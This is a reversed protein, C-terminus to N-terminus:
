IVRVEIDTLGAIGGRMVENRQVPGIGEPTGTFILDGPQLEFYTSLNAVIEPVSWVLNALDSRQRDQGDVQLWIEGSSPHGVSAAPHLLSVPASQDFSKGLEWPRGKNRADIQLDRRTMDLGVAYGWIHDNAREVSINRGATGIAVVLEIEFHYESTCPPYSLQAAHGAAAVVISDAPKQFFFPPERDPDFGMERVHAAYNRGVCYVRRVPFRSNTDGNNGPAVALSPVTPPSLVFTM